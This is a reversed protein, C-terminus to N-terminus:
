EKVLTAGPSGQMRVLQAYSAQGRLMWYMRVALKRAIAVKAVGSGRRLKLRQYDQRLESDLRAASHGAEVLLSRMMPNGQKSIAGLRQRGGSSHERPNLGLYSVVQKSREFREVPGLTLVFALSTVPGVGPHTMLLVAAPSQEAQEAVAGDLKELSEDLQDLMTLLEQRRYSAWPGLRLSELEARGKKTFLKKKRCVGEGMALAHLQNGAANRMWVLKQRHWVLQRLDREAMTPRWIRPFRESLLLELVHAADRADTKQKRVRKTRIEAADGIWLEVQLEGLLREFWRAHGSAEMGVRVTAGQAGLDRYFKEAEERHELRREQFEGSDTDVFAIQQFGPHYDAGRIIM